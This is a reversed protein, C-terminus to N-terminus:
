VHMGRIDLTNITTHTFFIRDLPINPGSFAMGKAFILKLIM